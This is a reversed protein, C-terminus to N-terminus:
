DGMAATNQVAAVEKLVVQQQVVAESKKHNAKLAMTHMKNMREKVVDVTAEMTELQSDMRTMM